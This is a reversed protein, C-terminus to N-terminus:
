NNYLLISSTPAFFTMMYLTHSFNKTENPEEVEEAAFM